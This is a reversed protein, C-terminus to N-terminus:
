MQFLLQALKQLENALELSDNGYAVEVAQCSLECYHSASKSDGVLLSFQYNLFFISSHDTYVKCPMLKLLPTM